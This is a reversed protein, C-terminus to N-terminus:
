LSVLEGVSMRWVFCGKPWFFHRRNRDVNKAIMNVGGSM